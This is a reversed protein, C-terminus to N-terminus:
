GSDQQGVATSSIALPPLIAYGERENVGGDIDIYQQGYAANMEVFFGKDKIQAHLSPVTLLACLFTTILKIKM